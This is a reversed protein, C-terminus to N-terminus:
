DDLVQRVMKLMDSLRYPKRVFATGQSSLMKKINEDPVAYGSAVIIRVEPDLARLQEFCRYGGMGPMSLDLIVLDIRSGEREFIEIAAEGSEAVLSNYGGQELMASGVELLNKEDDVLLITEGRGWVTDEGIQSEIRPRGTEGSIVPFYLHFATGRGPTSKCEIYGRHNKIIGYVMSLGLGTGKGMEKTTFFPEFIHEITEEDIGCGTDRITLRVYDGQRAGVHTNCFQADIYTDKTSFSLTGGEPMADRANLAINMIVQEIQLPDALIPTLGDALDLEIRIMKPLTSSLLKHVQMVEANLDVPRLRSKVRRSFALLHQVLEAARAMSRDMPRLYSLDPDDEEKRSILLELYGSTTQLINNFDHAIGGALTGIAEMKQAHQLQSEMRKAETIDKLTHTYGRLVKHDDFIPSTTCLYTRGGCAESIEKTCPMLTKMTTILPCGTIPYNQHHVAEYCKKGVLGQKTSGLAKASANNVRIIRHQSDLLMVMDTIADFTNEWDDRASILANDAHVKETVDRAIEIVGAVEGDEKELPIGFAEWYSQGGSDSDTYSLTGSERMGSSLAKACPCGPCESDRDRLFEYCKSGQFKEVAKDAVETARKNAWVLRMDPDVQMIVDISANLIAQKEAESERLREEWQRRESIDKFDEIIGIIKGDPDRFPTATVICFTEKGDKLYKEMEMEVRQEGSMIRNLSCHPTHCMPGGFVDYCKRGVAEEKNVNAMHVFTENVRFVNFDCDVLWMGDAATEFIQELEALANMTSQEAMRRENIHLILPRFLFLYLMPSILVILLSSDFIAEIWSPMSIYHLGMMVLAESVFVSFIIILLLRVPSEYVTSRKCSSTAQGM